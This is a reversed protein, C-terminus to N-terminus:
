NLHLQKLVEAVSEAIYAPIKNNFDELTQREIQVRLKTTKNEILVEVKKGTLAENYVDKVITVEWKGGVPPAFVEKQSNRSIPELRYATGKKDPNLDYM